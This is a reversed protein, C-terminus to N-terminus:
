TRAVASTSCAFILQFDAKQELLTLKVWFKLYLPQRGGVMRRTLFSPYIIKRTYLFTPVPKKRKTVFCTNSLRVFLMRM